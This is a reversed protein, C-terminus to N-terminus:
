LTTRGDFTVAFITPGSPTARKVWLPCCAGPVYLNENGPVFGSPLTSESPRQCHVTVAVSSRPRWDLAVWGNQSLRVSPFRLEGEAATTREPRFIATADNLSVRGAVTVLEITLEFPTSM